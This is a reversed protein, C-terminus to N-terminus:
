REAARVHGNKVFTVSIPAKPVLVVFPVLFQASTAPPCTQNYRVTYDQGFRTVSVLMSTCISKSPEAVGLMTKTSLVAADFPPAAPRMTAAYGFVADFTAKSEVIFAPQKAIAANNRVFYSTGTWVSAAVPSPTSAASLVNPAALMPVGMLACALVIKIKM